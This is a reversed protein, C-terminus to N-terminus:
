QVVLSQGKYRGLGRKGRWVRRAVLRGQPQINGHAAQEAVQVAVGAAAAATAHAPGVVFPVSYSSTRPTGQSSCCLACSWGRKDGSVLTPGTSTRWDDEDMQAFRMLTPTSEPGRLCIYGKAISIYKARRSRM